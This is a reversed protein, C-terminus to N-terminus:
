SSRARSTRIQKWIFLALWTCVSVAIFSVVLTYHVELRGIAEADQAGVLEALWVAFAQPPRAFMEPDKGWFYALSLSALVIWVVM